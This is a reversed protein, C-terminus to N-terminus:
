PMYYTREWHRRSLYSILTVLLAGLLVGCFDILMDTFQMARGPVFYQRIEDTVALLAGAGLSVPLPPVRMQHHLAANLTLGFAFFLTFHAATRIYKNYASVIVEDDTGFFLELLRRLFTKSTENSVAANQGTFYSILGAVIASLILWIVFAILRRKIKTKNAERM